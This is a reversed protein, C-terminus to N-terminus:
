QACPSAPCECNVGAPEDEEPEEHDMPGTKPDDCCNADCPFGNENLGAQKGFVRDWGEAYAESPPRNIIRGTTEKQGHLKRAFEAEGKLISEKAKKM